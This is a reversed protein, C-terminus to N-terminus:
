EGASGQKGRGIMSIRILIPREVHRYFAWTTIWILMITVLATVLVSFGFGLYTELLLFVGCSGVLLIPWHLLFLGYSQRGVTALGQALSGQVARAPLAAYLLAPGSLATAFRGWTEPLWPDYWQALALGGTGSGAPNLGVFIAAAILIIRIVLNPSGLLGSRRFAAIAAGLLVAATLPRFFIIALGLVLLVAPRVRESSLRLGFLCVVSGLFLDPMMWLPPLLATNIEVDGLLFERALSELTVPESWMQSLWTYGGFGYIRESAKVHLDGLTTMLVWAIVGAVLAPLVLRLYRHLVSGPLWARTTRLSWAEVTAYGSVAMLLAVAFVNPVLLNYFPFPEIGGPIGLVTFSGIVLNPFFVWFFHTGVVALVAVGRLADLGQHRLQTM